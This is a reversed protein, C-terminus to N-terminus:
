KSGFSSRVDVIYRQRVSRRARSAAVSACAAILRGRLRHRRGLLRRGLLGCDDRRGLWWRGDPASFFCPVEFNTSLGADLWGLLRRLLGSLLLLLTALAPAVVPAVVVVPVAVAVAVAAVVVALRVGLAALAAAAAAAAALAVAM